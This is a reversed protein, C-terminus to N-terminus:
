HHHAHPKRQGATSLQQMNVRRASRSAANAGRRFGQLPMCDAPEVVAYHILSGCHICGVEYSLQGVGEVTQPFDRLCEPCSVMVYAKWFPRDWLASDV